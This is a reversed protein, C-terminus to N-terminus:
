PNGVLEAPYVKIEVRRNKARGGATSNDAIPKSEGHWDVKLQSQKAGAAMLCNKAAAARRESLDVNYQDTDIEDTHGDVHLTAESYGDVLMHAVGRLYGQADASLDAKDSAFHVSDLDPYPKPEKSCRWAPFKSFNEMTTVIHSVTWWGVAFGEKAVKIAPEIVEKIEMTGHLELAKALGAVTGPVTSAKYGHINADDKVRKWGMWGPEVEDLLEYMDPTCDKSPRGVYDIIVNKGDATHIAMIGEGGIGNMAPEVVCDMFAAAVAADVANGGKRMIDVGAEAILPHKAAVMGHEAKCSERTAKEWKRTQYIYSM